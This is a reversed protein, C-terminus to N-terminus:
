QEDSCKPVARRQELNQSTLKSQVVLLLLLLFFKAIKVCGRKTVTFCYIFGVLQNLYSM